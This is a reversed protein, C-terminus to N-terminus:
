VIILKTLPVLPGPPPSQSPALWHFATYEATASPLTSTGVTLHCLLHLMPSENVLAFPTLSTPTLHAEEYLEQTLAALFDARDLSGSPVCEWAGPHQTVNPSRKGLLIQDGHRTIGCLTVPRIPISLGQQQAFLYRYPLLCGTLSHTDYNLCHVFPADFHHPEKKEEWITDVETHPLSIPDILEIHFDAAIPEFSLM